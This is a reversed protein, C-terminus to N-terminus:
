CIPNVQCKGKKKDHKDVKINPNYERCIPLTQENDIGQFLRHLISIEQITFDDLGTDDKDM